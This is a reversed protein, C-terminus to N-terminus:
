ATAKKTRTSPTLPLESADITDARGPQRRPVAIRFEIETALKRGLVKEIRALIQNRMMWLQSRWVADEVEIVLRDRVLAVAWTHNAVIKGVAPAWAACALQEDTVGHAALKLKALVRGAREM